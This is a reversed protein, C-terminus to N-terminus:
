ENERVEMIISAITDDNYEVILRYSNEYGKVTTKKIYQKLNESYNINEVLINNFDNLNEYTVIVTKVNLSTYLNTCLDEYLLLNSSCNTIDVFKNEDVSNIIGNIMISSNNLYNNINKAGYLGEVTNYNLTYDYSKKLNLFQTFLFVLTGIIFVSVVLVEVLTFGSNKKM